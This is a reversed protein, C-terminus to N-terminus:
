SGSTRKPHDALKRAEVFSGILIGVISVWLAIRIPVSYDFHYGAFDFPFIVLTQITVILGAIASLIQGPSKFPVSDDWIYLLNLVVGVVFAITLWPILRDFEATLFGFTDWELINHAIWIMVGNVAAAITYGFRKAPRDTRSVTSASSTTM